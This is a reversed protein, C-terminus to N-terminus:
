QADNLLDVKTTSLMTEPFLLKLEIVMFPLSKHNYSAVSSFAANTQKNQQWIERDIAINVTKDPCFAVTTFLKMKYTHM